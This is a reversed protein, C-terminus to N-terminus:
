TFRGSHKSPEVKVGEQIDIKIFRREELSRHVRHLRALGLGYNEWSYISADEGKLRQISSYLFKGAEESGSISVLDQNSVELLFKLLKVDPKENMDVIISYSVCGLQPQLLVGFNHSLLIM